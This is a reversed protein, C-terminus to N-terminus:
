EAEPSGRNIRCPLPSDDVNLQVDKEDRLYLWSVVSKGYYMGDSEGSDDEPADEIYWYDFKQEDISPISRTFLEQKGDRTVVAINPEAAIEISAGECELSIILPRSEFPWYETHLMSRAGAGAFVGSVASGAVAGGFGGCGSVLALSAVPILFYVPSM